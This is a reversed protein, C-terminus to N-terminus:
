LGSRVREAHASRPFKRGFRRVEAQEQERDGVARLAEIRLVSAEERLVGKPYRARYTSLTALAQQTAGRSLSLRARDLLAVQDRISRAAARDRKETPSPSKTAIPHPAPKRAPTQSSRPSAEKSTPDDPAPRERQASGETSTDRHPAAALVETDAPGPTTPTVDSSDSYAHWGTVVGGGLGFVLCWKAIQAVILKGSAEATIGGAARTAASAAGPAVYLLGLAAIAHRRLSPSPREAVAAGLLAREVPTAGLDLLRTPESM